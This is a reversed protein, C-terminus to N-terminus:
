RAAKRNAQYFEDVSTVPKVGPKIHRSLRESLEAVGVPRSITLEGKDEDFEIRLVGGSENIGMKHRIAAPLTTQGKRTITILRSMGM